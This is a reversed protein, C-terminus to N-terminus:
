GKLGPYDEPGHTETLVRNAELIAITGACASLLLACPFPPFCGFQWWRAAFRGKRLPSDWQTTEGSGNKLETVRALGVEAASKPSECACMGRWMACM